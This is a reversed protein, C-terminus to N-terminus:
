LSLLASRPAQYILKGDRLTCRVSAFAEVSESPDGDLVVLDAPGGVDICGSRGPAGFRRAPATTLAALIQRFTAGAAAMLAYERSPDAEVAGLDTGFLVEGGRELWSRLQDVAGAVVHERASIRDHRMMSEWVMLTPILATGRAAMAELLPASWEGSRPTTHAVVDVGGDLAASIDSATNPHAFVPKGARHAEDVAARIVDHSLQGASPASVFLKIGDVGATLLNRAADCAQESSAVDCLATEMLGLVRFVEDSPRGGAPILGEGTSRIHPGAIEGSEIRDRIRRTNEWQSSLDFVGAFGYGTLEALQRELEPAPIEAANAWKREHFHVHSNWFAATITRGSCDLVAAAPPVPVQARPGAEAVRGHRILVVADRVPEAAPDAWLTAGIMALESVNEVRRPM